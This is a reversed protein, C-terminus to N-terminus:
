IWAPDIVLNIPWILICDSPTLKAGPFEYQFGSSIGQFDDLLM